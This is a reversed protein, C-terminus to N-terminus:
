GRIRRVGAKYCLGWIALFTIVGLGFLPVLISIIVACAGMMGWFFDDSNM